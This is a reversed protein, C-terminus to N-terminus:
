DWGVAGMGKGSTSAAPRGKGGRGQCVCCMCRVKNAAFGPYIEVGLEEAKRGLWRTLESCPLTCPAQGLVCTWARESCTVAAQCVHMGAQEEPAIRHGGSAQPAFLARMGAQEEAAMRHGGLAQAASCYWRGRQAQERACRVAEGDGDGEGVAWAAWFNPGGVPRLSIVYNGKNKMQPPNPLPVAAGRTLLRFRSKAAPTKVPCEEDEKWGPLLEDLARPEFM